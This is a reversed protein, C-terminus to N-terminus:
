QFNHIAYHIFKQESLFDLSGRKKNEFDNLNKTCLGTPVNFNPITM